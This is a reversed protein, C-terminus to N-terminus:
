QTNSEHFPSKIDRKREKSSKFLVILIILAFIIQTGVIGGLVIYNPNVQETESTQENNLEEEGAVLSIETPCKLSFEDLFATIGNINKSPNLVLVINSQETPVNEIEGLKYEVSDTTLYGKLIADERVIRLLVNNSDSLAFPETETLKGLESSTLKVNLGNSDSEIKIGGRSESSARVGFFFESVFGTLENWVPYQFAALNITLNFDGTIKKSSVLRTTTNGLSNGFSRIVLQEDQRIGITEKEWFSNITNGTFADNYALDCTINTTQAIIKNPHNFFLQISILILLIATLKIKM